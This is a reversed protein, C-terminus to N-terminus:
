ARWAAPLAFDSYASRAELWDGEDLPRGGFLSREVLRAIAAFLDRARAPLGVSAALERSTLAPRVLAPRRSAIDDISRFLLHHIAEAFRGQRALADAEQLWSRAGREEPTWEEEDPLDAVRALRPLRLRWEGTRIRNYISWSLAAAGGVIVTWLLIRAYAADPFFSGVWNLFRGVPDFIKDMWHMFAKLWAPPQPPAEAPTLSFQIASDHRMAQWAQALRDAKGSAPNGGSIVGEMSPTLLSLQDRPWMVVGALAM